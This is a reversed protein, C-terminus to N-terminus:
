LRTLSEPQGVAVPESVFRVGKEVLREYGSVIDSVRLAVHRFGLENAKKRRIKSMSKGETYESIELTLAGGPLELRAVKAGSQEIGVGKQFDPGGIEFRRVEEFGM